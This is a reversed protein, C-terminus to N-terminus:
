NWQDQIRKRYLSLSMCLNQKLSPAHYISWVNANREWLFEFIANVTTLLKLISYVPTNQYKHMTPWQLWHDEDSWRATPRAHGFSQCHVNSAFHTVLDKWVQRVYWTDHNFNISRHSCGMYRPMQQSQQEFRTYESQVSFCFRGPQSREGKAPLSSSSGAGAKNMFHTGTSTGLCKTLTLAM